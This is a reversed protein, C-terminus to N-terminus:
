QWLGTEQIQFKNLDDKFNFYYEQHCSSVYHVTLGTNFIVELYSDGSLLSHCGSDLWFLELISNSPIVKLYHGGRFSPQEKPTGLTIMTCLNSV